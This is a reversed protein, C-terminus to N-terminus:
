RNSKGFGIKGLDLAMGRISIRTPPSFRGASITLFYSLLPLILIELRPIPSLSGQVRHM